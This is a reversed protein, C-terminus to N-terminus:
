RAPEDGSEHSRTEPESQPRVAATGSKPTGSKATGSKATGSMATHVTHSPVDDEKLYAPRLHV